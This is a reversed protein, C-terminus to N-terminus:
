LCISERGTTDHEDQTGPEAKPATPRASAIVLLLVLGLRYRLRTVQTTSQAYRTTDTLDHGKDDHLRGATATTRKKGGSLGSTKESWLLLRRNKLQNLASRMVAARYHTHRDEAVEAAGLSHTIM